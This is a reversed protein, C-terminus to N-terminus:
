IATGKSPCVSGKAMSRVSTYVPSNKLNHSDLDGLVHTRCPVPVPITYLTMDEGHPIDASVIHNQAYEYQNLYYEM